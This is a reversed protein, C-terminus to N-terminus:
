DTEDGETLKQNQEELKDLHNQLDDRIHKPCDYRCLPCHSQVHQIWDSWNRMYPNKREIRSVKMNPPIYMEDDELIYSQLCVVCVSISKM